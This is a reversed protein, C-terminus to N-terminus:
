LYLLLLFALRIVPKLLTGSYFVGPQGCGSFKLLNKEKDGRGGGDGHNPLKLGDTWVPQTCLFVTM